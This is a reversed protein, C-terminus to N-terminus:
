PQTRDAQDILSDSESNAALADPDSESTIVVSKIAGQALRSDLIAGVQVADADKLLAGDATRMVAYGRDLVSQPSLSRLQSQSGNLKERELHLLATAKRHSSTNLTALAERQQQILRRPHQQERQRTLNTLQTREQQLRSRFARTFRTRNEAIRERQVSVIATPQTMVPRSSINTLRLRESELRQELVRLGRDWLSAIGRMENAVDPVIRKAADTPTSARVDAVDDLLPHDQEHGIASVVPKPCEAVARLLTENRFALLDEAGGGGRTIVIVDVDPHAVLETLAASVELPSKAGQVAVEKVEFQVQPWRIKANVEVDQRAAAARGCILGVRKPLFPLPLKREVDFLGEAALTLRLQEIQALLAGIGVTRFEMVRWNLAGQKSFYEPKALVIVRDGERVQGNPTLLKTTNTVAPISMDADTDRLTLWSTSGRKRLQAIQGEVWIAGTKRIWDGLLRSARRVPMPDDASTQAAM